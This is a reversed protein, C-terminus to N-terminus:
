GGTVPPFFAIERANAVLSTPQAHIQDIAVRVVGARKFVAEYEPGRGSQWTLVDAVTRLGAPLTMTEESLGLRERVWAFYVLTM